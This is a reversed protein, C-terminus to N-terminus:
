VDVARNPSLSQNEQIELGKLM